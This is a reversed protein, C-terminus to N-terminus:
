NGENAQLRENSQGQNAECQGGARWRVKYSGGLRDIAPWAVDDEANHDQDEHDYYDQLRL